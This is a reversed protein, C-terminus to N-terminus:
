RSKTTNRATPDDIAPQDPLSLASKRQRYPQSPGCPREAVLVVHQQEPSLGTADISGDSSTSSSHEGFGTNWPATPSATVAAGSIRLLAHPQAPRLVVGAGRSWGLRASTWRRLTASSCVASTWGFFCVSARAIRHPSMSRMTSCGASSPKSISSVPSIAAMTSRPPCLLFASELPDATESTYRHETFTTATSDPHPATAKPVSM